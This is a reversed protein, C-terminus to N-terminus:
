EAARDQVGKKGDGHSQLWESAAEKARQTQAPSLQREIDKLKNSAMSWTPDKRDLSSKAITMWQYARSPDPQIGAGTAFRDALEYQAHGNGQNAAMQFLQLARAADVPVGNGTSYFMGLNLQADAVGQEAAKNYWLASQKYDHLSRSREYILGVNYQGLANGQDAAKRYWHMAQADDQKVGSGMRYM